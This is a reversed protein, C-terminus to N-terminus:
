LKRGKTFKTLIRVNERKITLILIDQHSKTLIRVNKM